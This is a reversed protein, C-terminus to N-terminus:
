IGGESAGADPTPAPPPRTLSVETLTTSAPTSGGSSSAYAGILFPEPLSFVATGVTTWQVGDVSYAGSIRSHAPEGPLQTRTLRLWVPAKVEAVPPAVTGMMNTASRSMFQVGMEATVTLVVAPTARSVLLLVAPGERLMLGVRAPANPHTFAGVKVTLMQDGEATLFAYLGSDQLLSLPEGTGALKLGGAEHVALGGGAGGLEELTWGTTAAQSGLNHLRLTNVESTTPRNPNKSAVAFGVVVEAPLDVDVSGVRTWNLRPQASRYATFTRGTRTLRLWQGDRLGVDSVATVAAAGTAGRHLLLGGRTRDALIGAFVAAAGPDTDDARVMLGATSEPSAMQLSQIRTELEFDGSVKRNVFHFSDAVGGIDRGGSEVRM